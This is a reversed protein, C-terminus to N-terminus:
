FSAVASSTDKYFEFYDDFGALQFNSYILEPVEAFIIKGRYDRSITKQTNIFLLIGSSSLYSVDSLDIVFNFHGDKILNHLADKIKPTTYSDIRGTIKILDCQQCESTIFKM